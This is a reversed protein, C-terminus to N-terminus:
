FIVLVFEGPRQVRRGSRPARRALQQEHCARTTQQLALSQAIHQTVRNGVGEDGPNLAFGTGFISQEGFLVLVVRVPKALPPDPHHFGSSPVRSYESLRASQATCTAKTMSPTGQAQRRPQVGGGGSRRSRAVAAVPRRWPVYACGSGVCRRLGFNCLLHGFRRSPSITCIPIRRGGPSPSGVRDLGHGIDMGTVMCIVIPRAPLANRRRGTKVYRPKVPRRQAVIM